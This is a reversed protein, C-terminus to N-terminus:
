PSVAIESVIPMLRLVKSQLRAVKPEPHGHRHLIRCIPWEVYLM